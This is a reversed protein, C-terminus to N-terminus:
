KLNKGRRYKGGELFCHYRAKGRRGGMAVGRWLGRRRPRRNKTPQQTNKQRDTAMLAVVYKNKQKKTVKNAAGLRYRFGGWCTGGHDRARGLIRGVSFASKQNTTTNEWGFPPWRLSLGRGGRQKVIPQTEADLVLSLPAALACGITRAKWPDM